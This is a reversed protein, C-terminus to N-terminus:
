ATSPQGLLGQVARQLMSTTLCLLAVHHKLRPPCYGCVPSSVLSSHVPGASRWPSPCSNEGGGSYQSLPMQHSLLLPHTQPSLVGQCSFALVCVRALVSSQPHAAPTGRSSLRQRLLTPSPPSFGPAPLCATDWPWKWQKYSGSRALHTTTSPHEASGHCSLAVRHGQPFHFSAARGDSSFSSFRKATHLFSPRSPLQAMGRSASCLHKILSAHQYLTM